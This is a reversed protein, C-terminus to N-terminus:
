SKWYNLGNADIANFCAALGSALSFSSGNAQNNIQGLTTPPYVLLATATGNIVTQSRKFGTGVRLAFGNNGGGM